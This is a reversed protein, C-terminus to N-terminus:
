SDPALVLAWIEEWCHHYKLVEYILNHHVEGFENELGLLTIVLSRLKIRAKNIIISMQKTHELTGPVKPTFDKQIKHEIYNNESLFKFIANRLYSTCIKM